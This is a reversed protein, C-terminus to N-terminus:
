GPSRKLDHFLLPNKSRSLEGEKTLFETIDAKNTSKTAFTKSGSFQSPADNKPPDRVNVQELRQSDLVRGTAQWSLSVGTNAFTASLKELKRIRAQLWCHVAQRTVNVNRPEEGLWNAIRQMSEGRRALLLVEEAYPEMVKGKPGRKQTEHPDGGTAIWIADDKNAM